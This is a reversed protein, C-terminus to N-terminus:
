GNLDNEKVAGWTRALLKAWIHSGVAGWTNYVIIYDWRLHAPIIERLAETLDAMNPPIGITGVFKIEIRFQNAFEAIEVEGNSFSEAVNQIMAVTTIGAGRLKSKIRSRRFSLDKAAEVPIGLTQEWYRLGWTATDVSLQDLVSDRYEWLALVEPELAEQLDVFEASGAYFDPYRVILKRVDGDGGGRRDM